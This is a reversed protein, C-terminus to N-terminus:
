EKGWLLVIAMGVIGLVVTSVAVDAVLLGFNSYMTTMSWSSLDFTLAVLFGFLAGIKLGDLFGKAGSWKLFLTLLLASTLNSVIIAWWIMEGQPRAACQNMNASFLDMLLIGYVLWGILFYVIGGFLTGRLIKM